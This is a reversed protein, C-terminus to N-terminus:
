VKISDKGGQTEGPTEPDRSDLFICDKLSEM